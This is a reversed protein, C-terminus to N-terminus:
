NVAKLLANTKALVSVLEKEMQRDNCLASAFFSLAAKIHVLDTYGVENEIIHRHTEFYQERVNESVSAPSFYSLILGDILGIEEDTYGM